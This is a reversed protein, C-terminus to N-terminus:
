IQLHMKGIGRANYYCVEVIITGVIYTSYVDQLVRVTEYVEVLHSMTSTAVRIRCERLFAQKLGIHYTHLHMFQLVCATCMGHLTVAHHANQPNHM